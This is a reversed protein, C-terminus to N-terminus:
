PRQSLVPVLKALGVPKAPGAEKDEVKAMKARLRRLRRRSVGTMTEAQWLCRPVKGKAM